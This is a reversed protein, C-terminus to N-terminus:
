FYKLQRRSIEYRPRTERNGLRHIPARYASNNMMEEWQRLFAFTISVNSFVGEPIANVQTFQFVERWMQDLRRHVFDCRGRHIREGKDGSCQAHGDSQGNDVKNLIPM